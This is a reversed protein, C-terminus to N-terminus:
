LHFGRNAMIELKRNQFYVTSMPDLTSTNMKMIEDEKEIRDMEEKEQSQKIM